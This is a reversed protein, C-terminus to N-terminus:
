RDEHVVGITVCYRELVWVVREEHNAPAIINAAQKLDETANGMAVRYGAFGFVPLDNNNDGIAMVCDIPVNVKTLVAQLATGKDAGRAFVGLSRVDGISGYYTVPRCEATESHM